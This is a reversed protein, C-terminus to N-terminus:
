KNAEYFAKAFGSPTIARLDARTSSTLESISPLKRRKSNCLYKDQESLSVPTKKPANFYGWLDTKKTYFEGFDCPNFTFAPKGMFQRLYGMPNEMCWFALKSHYRCQWIIELCARVLEMGQKFDRPTKGRTRALSFMTCTPAALIGYVEEYLVTMSDEYHVNMIEFDMGYNDFEVKRVDYKPLTIVKVDYGADRYPKSWAGTGGCLDLIIKSM